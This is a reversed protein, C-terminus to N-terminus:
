EKSVGADASRAKELLRAVLKVPLGVVNTFSGDLEEIYRDGNEQVAYAGAKGLGEGSAAYRAIEEGSMSKMKIRTRAAATLELGPRERVLAVGTIVEHVSGSLKELIERAEAIDAPKGIISGNLHVVTDAGLVLQEPRVDAVSRAKALANRVALREPDEHASEEEICPAVIEFRYGERRLLEKRRPSLSALIFDTEAM